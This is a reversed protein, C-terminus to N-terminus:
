DVDIKWTVQLSDGNVVNIASFVQRALLVGTTISDLLCSETVAFSATFNYTVVVQATDNTVDTTVRSTTGAARSGGGTSIETQCATDGAAAATAGTGIAIHEFFNTIVGNLLGATAAKGADVVLNPTSHALKVNGDSDRLLFEIHGVLQEAERVESASLPQDTSMGRARLELNEALTVAKLGAPTAVRKQACGGASLALALVIAYLKRTQM